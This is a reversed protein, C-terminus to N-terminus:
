DRIPRGSKRLTPDCVIREPVFVLVVIIACHSGVTGQYADGAAPHGATNQTREFKGPQFAHQKPEGINCCSTLLARTGSEWGAQKRHHRLLSAEDWLCGDKILDRWPCHM